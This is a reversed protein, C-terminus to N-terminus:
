KKTMRIDKGKEAQLSKKKGAERLTPNNKNSEVKSGGREVQTFALDKKELAKQGFRITIGEVGLSESGKNKVLHSMQTQNANGVKTCGGKGGGNEGRKGWKM